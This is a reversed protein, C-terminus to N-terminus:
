AKVKKPEAHRGTRRTFQHNIAWWSFYGVLVLLFVTPGYSLLVRWFWIAAGVFMSAIAAISLFSFVMFDKM